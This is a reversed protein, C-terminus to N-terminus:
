PSPLSLFYSGIAHLVPMFLLCAFVAPFYHKSHRVRSFLGGVAVLLCVTALAGFLDSDAIVSFFARM